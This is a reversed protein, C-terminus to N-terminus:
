VRDLSITALIPLHDSLGSFKGKNEYFKLPIGDPMFEPLSIITFESENIFPPNEGLLGSSVILHDLNHWSKKQEWYYTGAVSQNCEAKGPPHPTKEGLLRWSCNYLHVRKVDDDAWHAKYSRSRHRHANLVEQTSEGFPEDNLDGIIIVSNKKKGTTNEHLFDYVYQSLHDAIRYRIQESKVDFRAQWHCVICRINSDITSIDIVGMPRTGRPTAPVVIPPSESFSFKNDSNRHLIAIQLTPNDTRTDLSILNYEPFLRNKLDRAAYATIEGLAIISPIGYNEFSAKFATDVAACKAQYQALSKPWRDTKSKDHDYHYFDGVNWWFVSLSKESM